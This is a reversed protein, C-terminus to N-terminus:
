QGAGGHQNGCQDRQLSRLSTEIRTVDKGNVNGGHAVAFRVLLDNIEVLFRHAANIRQRAHVTSRKAIDNGPAVTNGTKTDLERSVTM